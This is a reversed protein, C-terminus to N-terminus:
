KSSGITNKFSKMALYKAFSTLKWSAFYIKLGFETTRRFESSGRGSKSDFPKTADKAAELLDMHHNLWAFIMEVERVILRKLKTFIRESTQDAPLKM